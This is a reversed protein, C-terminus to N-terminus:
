LEDKDAPLDKVLARPVMMILPLDKLREAVGIVHKGGIVMFNLATASRRDRVGDAMQQDRQPQTKIAANLFRMDIECIKRQLDGYAAVKSVPLNKEHQRIFDRYALENKGYMKWQASPVHKKLYIISELLSRNLEEVIVILEKVAVSNKELLECDNRQMLYKQERQGCGREDNGEMFFRDGRNKRFEFM